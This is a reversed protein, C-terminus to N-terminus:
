GLNPLRRFASSVFSSGLDKASIEVGTKVDICIYWSQVENLEPAPRKYPVRNERVRLEGSEFSDFRDFRSDGDDDPPFRFVSWLQNVDRSRPLWAYATLGYGSGGHGNWAAVVVGGDSGDHIHAFDQISGLSEGDLIPNDEVFETFGPRSVVLTWLEGRSVSVGCHCDIGTRGTLLGRLKQNDVM